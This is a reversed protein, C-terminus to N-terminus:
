QKDVKMFIWCICLVIILCQYKVWGGVRDRQWRRTHPPLLSYQARQLQWRNFIYGCYQIYICTCTCAYIWMLGAKTEWTEEMERYSTRIYMCSGATVSLFILSSLNPFIKLSSHFIPLWRPNFWSGRVKARGGSSHGGSSLWGECNEIDSRTYICEYLAQLWSPLMHVLKSMPYCCTFLSPYWSCIWAEGFVGRQTQSFVTSLCVSCQMRWREEEEHWVHCVGVETHIWSLDTLWMLPPPWYTITLSWVRWHIGLMWRTDLERWSRRMEWKNKHTWAAHGCCARLAPSWVSGRVSNVRCCSTPRKFSCTKCSM